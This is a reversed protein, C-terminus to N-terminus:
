RFEYILHASSIEGLAIRAERGAEQVVIEDTGVEVLTGQWVKSGEVPERSKVYVKKGLQAEFHSRKRLPREIGPSSVELSYPGDIGSTEELARGVAGSIRACLDHTVGDPHDVYLRLIRQRRSGAEELIVLEAGGVERDIIQQFWAETLEVVEERSYFL